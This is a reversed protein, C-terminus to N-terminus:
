PRKRKQHSRNVVAVRVRIAASVVTLSLMVLAMVLAVAGLLFLLQFNSNTAAFLYSYGYGAGAQGTAFTATAIGWASKRAEPDSVLEQTQGLVLPVMGTVASGVVISSVVLSTTSQDIALIAVGAIYVVLVCRLARGFGILDALRGTMLPGLLAGLGFVIWYRGGAVIGHGLGRAIFDVLFVMHPVLGVAMLGYTVYVAILAPDRLNGSLPGAEGVVSASSIRSEPWWFWALGTAAFSLVALGIWTTQLGQTLLAPVLTGSLIIGSGVGAFIVGAALGRKGPVVNPLVFPASLVMLAGGTIGSVLRWVFFWGFSLPFASAVFALSALLMLLRLSRTPSLKSALRRGGLAGVLYGALNAAGLYAAEGPEFWGAEIVAPILPSYAFRSLGIGVLMALLAATVAKAAEIRHARDRDM